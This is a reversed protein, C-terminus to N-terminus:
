AMGANGLPLAVLYPPGGSFGKQLSRYQTTTAERDASAEIPEESYWYPVM